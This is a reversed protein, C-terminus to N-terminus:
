HPQLRGHNMDQTRPRMTPTLVWLAVEIFYDDETFLRRAIGQAIASYYDSKM